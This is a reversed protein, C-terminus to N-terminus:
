WTERRHSGPKGDCNKGKGVLVRNCDEDVCAHYHEANKSGYPSNYSHAWLATFTHRHKKCATM